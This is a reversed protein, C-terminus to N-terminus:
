HRGVFKEYDAIAKDVNRLLFELLPPDHGKSKIYALLAAEAANLKEEAELKLDDEKAM